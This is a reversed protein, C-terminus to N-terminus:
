DDKLNSNIRKKYEDYVEALANLKAGIWELQANVSVMEMENTLIKFRNNLADYDNRYKRVHDEIIELVVDKNIFCKPTHWVNTKIKKTCFYFGACGSCICGSM